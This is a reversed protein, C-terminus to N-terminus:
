ARGGGPGISRGLQPHESASHQPCSGGRWPPRAARLRTPRECLGLVGLARAVLPGRAQRVVRGKIGREIVAWLQACCGCHGCETKVAGPSTCTRRASSDTESLAPMTSEGAAQRLKPISSTEVPPVARSSVAAPIVHPRDVVEGAERLDHVAADLRQVRARRRGARAARRRRACARRGGLLADLEDVEDADVEVRELAGGGPRPTSRASTISFMSM